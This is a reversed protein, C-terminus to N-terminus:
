AACRVGEQQLTQIPRAANEEGKTREHGPSVEGPSYSSRHRTNLQRLAVASKRKRMKM